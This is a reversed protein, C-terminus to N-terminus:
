SKRDTQLPNLDIKVPRTTDGALFLTQTPFAFQIEEENFKRFLEKNLNESFVMYKWYDNPPHYWYIALINLSDPNFANFFVRAPLDEKMGEHNELLTKVIEVARDIKEPPTDYAITINMVRKINPRKGINQITKNALEGNPITVLDGDLTRIKTSRLGIEEVPGDHGDILIRDGIEFPKDVFLVLSGFFNKLTDQAALAVALGGIGLGAVISTLPKGSLIQAIQVTVLIIVAIRLSKRTLPALMNDLRTEKDRSMRSLLESPIEVLHFLFYGVGATLLIAVATESIEATRGKLGLFIIAMSISLATLLFVMGESLAKLTVKLAFRRGNGIKNIYRQLLLRVMRGAFVSILIIAFLGLIRWASDGIAEFGPIQDFFAM